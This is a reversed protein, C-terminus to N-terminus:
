YNNKITTNTDWSIEPRRTRSASTARSGRICGATGSRPAGPPRFQSPVSAWFHGLSRVYFHCVGLFFRYFHGISFHCDVWVWSHKSKIKKRDKQINRSSVRNGVVILTQSRNDKQSTKSRCYRTGWFIWPQYLTVGSDFNNRLFMAPFHSTSYGPDM